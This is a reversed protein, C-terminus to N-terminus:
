MLIGYIPMISTYAIAREIAHNVQGIAREIAHNVQM